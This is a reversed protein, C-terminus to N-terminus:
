VRQAGQPPPQYIVTILEADTVELAGALAHLTEVRSKRIDQLGNELLSISMINMKARRAVDGQSLGLAQRRTRLYQGFM